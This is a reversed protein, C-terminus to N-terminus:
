EIVEWGEVCFGVGFEKLDNQADSENHYVAMIENTDIENRRLVYVKM